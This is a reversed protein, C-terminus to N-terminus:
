NPGVLMGGVVIGWGGYRELSKEGNIWLIIRKM